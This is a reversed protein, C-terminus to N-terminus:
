QVMEAHWTPKTPSIPDPCHWGRPCNQFAQRRGMGRGSLPRRPAPPGTQAVGVTRKKGLTNKMSVGRDTHSSLSAEGAALCRGGPHLPPPRAAPQSPGGSRLLPAVSLALQGTATPSWNYPALDCVRHPARDGHSGIPQPHPAPLSDNTWTGLAGQPRGTDGQRTERSLLLSPREM